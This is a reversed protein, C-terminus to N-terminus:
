ISRSEREIRISERFSSRLVLKLEPLTQLDVLLKSSCTRRANRSTAIRRGGCGDIAEFEIQHGRRLCTDRFPPPEDGDNIASMGIANTAETAESTGNIPNTNYLSTETM